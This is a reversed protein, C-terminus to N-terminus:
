RTPNRYPQVRSGAANEFVCTRLVTPASMHADRGDRRAHRAKRGSRGRQHCVWLIADITSRACM